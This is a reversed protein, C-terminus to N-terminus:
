RGTIGSRLHLEWVHCESHGNSVCRVNEPLSVTLVHKWVCTEPQQQEAGELAARAAAPLAPRGPDAVFVRAGGHLAGLLMRQVGGAFTDDYFADGCLVIDWGKGPKCLRATEQDAAVLLDADSLRVRRKWDRPASSCGNLNSHLNESTAALAKRDIDNFTVATAGARLASIGAAGCGAAFDLVHRGACIEPQTDILECLAYSGPWLFAYFPEACGLAATAGSGDAAWLVPSSVPTQVALRQQIQPFHAFQPLTVKSLSSMFQAHFRSVFLESLLGQASM